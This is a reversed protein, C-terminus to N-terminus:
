SLSIRGHFGDVWIIQGTKLIKHCQSIGSVAPIGLERALIACHSLVGGKEVVVGKVKTFLPTWGPDTTESVLITHDGVKSFDVDKLNEVVLVEGKILGPSLSEGFFTEQNFDTDPDLIKKLDKFSLVDPLSLSSFAEKKEKRNLILEKFNEQKLGQIEQLGLHFIDEGIGQRKGLELAIFRINSYPKLIEMKWQERLLLMEKLLSWEQKLISAKYTELRDIEKEVDCTQESQPRTKEYEQQTLEYFADDGLEIWRPNALELEGAGRHGYRSLFFGRTNQYACAKQYYRSMESTVTGLGKGIWRKITERAEEKGVISQLLTQLSNLTAETLVILILPWTLTHQSFVHCEKLFREILEETSWDSYFDPNIPRDMKSKFNQLEKRCEHIWKKRETSLSWGVKIMKFISIPTRLIGSWSIKRWDFKLSARPALVIRYPIPGYFLSNLKELNIYSHGFINDLISEHPSFKEDVFGLYGIRKLANSFAMQPSFAKEWLSRTMESPTGAWESFTHGDWVTEQSYQDSIRKLEQELIRHKDSEGNKLTTIPRSQLIFLEGERDIAWEVDVDYGFFDKIKMGEEVIKEVQKISLLSDQFKTFQSYQTPTVKGSVLDEGLGEVAELIWGASKGRPDQSFFVGSYLPSIMEQIVVNMMFEPNDEQKKLFHEQYSSSASSKFSEFCLEISRRIDEVRDVNLFTKNQGAFSFGSSDELSASSRIALKKEKNESWWKELDEWDKASLMQSVIIGKPVNFGKQYLKSLNYAKGGVYKQDDSLTSFLTLM